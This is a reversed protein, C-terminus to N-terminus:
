TEPERERNPRYRRRKKACYSCYCMFIAELVGQVTFKVGESLCAAQMVDGVVVRQSAELLMLHANSLCNRGPDYTKMTKHIAV